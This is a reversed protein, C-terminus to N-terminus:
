ADPLDSFPELARADEWARQPAEQRKEPRGTQGYIDAAVLQANLSTWLAYANGVLLQKAARVDNLAADAMQEAKGLDALDTALSTEADARLLQAM